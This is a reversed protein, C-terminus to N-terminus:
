EVNVGYSQCLHALGKQYGRGVANLKWVGKYRYLEVAVVTKETTLDELAYRYLDRGDALIRVAPGRVASFDCRCDEYISFCVAYRGVQEPAKGLELVAMPQSSETAVRAEGERSQPNGFFILDEDGRVRDREYLRFVYPDIEVARTAEAHEYVIKITGGSAADIPVRQGRSLSQVEADTECPPAIIEDPTQIQVPESVPLDGSVPPLSQHEPAGKKAQGMLYIRRSVKTKILLEGYLITRDRMSATVIELTNKGAKLVTPAITVDKIRSVVEARAPVELEYCFRNQKGAAFEGLAIVSPLKWHSDEGPVGTVDGKVEVNELVTGSDSCSLATGIDAGPPTGVIEVRLNRVTVGPSEIVLVPGSSAWLTSHGGDIVCSRDIRLPGEYEGPTLTFNGTCNNFQDQLKSM